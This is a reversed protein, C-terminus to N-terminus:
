SQYYETLASQLADWRFPMPNPLSFRNKADVGTVPATWLERDEGVIARGKKAKAEKDLTRQLQAFFLGDVYQKVLDSTLKPLRLGWQDFPTLSLSYDTTTKISAHAILLVSFTESLSTLRDLIKVWVAAAEKWGRNYGPDELTAWKNRACLEAQVLLDLGDLSDIVISQYDHKEKVLVQIQTRYEALSSLLPFRACDIQDLGREAQIFIPKPLSAAFTSKGIGQPGYLCAFLPRHRKGTTVTGLLGNPSEPRAAPAKANARPGDLENALPESQTELAAARANLPNEKM